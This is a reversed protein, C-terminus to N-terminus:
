KVKAYGAAVFSAFLLMVSCGCYEGMLLVVM